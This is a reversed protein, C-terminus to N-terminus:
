NAALPPLSALIGALTESTSSYATLFARVRKAVLRTESDPEYKFEQTALSTMLQVFAGRDAENLDEIRRALEEIESRPRSAMSRTLLEFAICLEPFGQKEARLAYTRYSKFTEVRAGNKQTWAAPAAILDRGYTQVLSEAVPGSKETIEPAIESLRIVLAYNGIASLDLTMTQIAYTLDNRYEIMKRESLGEGLAGSSAFRQYLAEIQDVIRTMEDLDVSESADIRRVDANLLGLRSVFDLSGLQSNIAAEVKRAVRADLLEDLVITLGASLLSFAIAGFTLYLSRNRGHREKFKEV